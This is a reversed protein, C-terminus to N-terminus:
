LTSIYGSFTIVIITLFLNTVLFYISMNVYKMKKNAILSLQYVQQTFEELMGDEDISDVESFYDKFTTFQAIHGFYLLGKRKKQETEDLPPRAKYVFISLIVGVISSIIFAVVIFYFVGSINNNDLKQVHEFTNALISTGLGISILLSQISLSINAKTDAFSIMDQTNRYAQSVFEIKKGIDLSMGRKEERLM